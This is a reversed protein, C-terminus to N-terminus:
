SKNQIKRKKVLINIRNQCEAKEAKQAAAKREDSMQKEKAQIKKKSTNDRIIYDPNLYYKTEM